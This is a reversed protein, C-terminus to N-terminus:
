YGVRLSPPNVSINLNNHCSCTILENKANLEFIGLSRVAPSVQISISPNEIHYRSIVGGKLSLHIQAECDKRDSAIKIQEDVEMYWFNNHINIIQSLSDIINLRGQVDAIGAQGRSYFFDIDAIQNPHIHKMVDVKSYFLLADKQCTQQYITHIDKYKRWYSATHKQPPVWKYFQLMFPFSFRPWKISDNSRVLSHNGLRKYIDESQGVYFPIFKHKNPNFEPNSINEFNLIENKDMNYLFGWIYVGPKTVKKAVLAALSSFHQPVNKVTM